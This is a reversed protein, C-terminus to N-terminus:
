TPFLKRCTSTRTRRPPAPSSEQNPEILEDPASEQNPEGPPSQHWPFRTDKHPTNSPNGIFSTGTADKSISVDNQTHTPHREACCPSHQYLQQALFLYPFVTLSIHLWILHSPLGYGDFLWNLSLIHTLSSGITPSCLAIAGYSLFLTM